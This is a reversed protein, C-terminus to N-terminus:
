FELLMILQPEALYPIQLLFLHTLTFSHLTLMHVLLDLPVRDNSAAAALAALLLAHAIPVALAAAGLFVLMILASM